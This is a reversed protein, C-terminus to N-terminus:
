SSLSTAKGNETAIEERNPLWVTIRNAGQSSRVEIRGGNREILTKAFVVGLPLLAHAGESPCDLFGALKGLPHRGGDFEFTLPMTGEPTQVALTQGEALDRAIVRLLNEFAYGIQAPDVFVEAADPPRYQLLIRRESLLPALNAFCPTLLGSLTVTCPVPDRFRTFQLLNELTRDMRDVAEGTLRSVQERGAEDGLLRELHQAITKITVMPNKFEHALENVILDVADNGIADPVVERSRAPEEPRPVIIRGYGFLLDGVDLTQRQALVISRTLVTELEALNGFWLYHGLREMARQTFRVPTACLSRTLGDAFREVLAPIDAVRERLPPLTIPLVSIRYFLERGLTATAALEEFSHASTCILRVAQKGTPSSFEGSEILELLLQEGEDTINTIEGIVLTLQGPPSAGFSQQLVTRSCSAAPVAVLRGVRGLAHIGRALRVKGTGPEGCILVPFRCRAARAALSVADEPFLPFEVDPHARSPAVEASRDELIAQVRARLDEPRFPYSLVTQPDDTAFPPKGPGQVWLVPTHPPFQPVTTASFVDTGVIFLDADRSEPLHRTFESPTFGRVACADGLVIAVTEQVSLSNDIVWVRPREL